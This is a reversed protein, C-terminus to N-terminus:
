YILLVLQSPSKRAQNFRRIKYFIIRVFPVFVMLFIIFDFWTFRYKSYVSYIPSLNVNIKLDRAANELLSFSDFKEIKGTQTDLLLYSTVPASPEISNESNDASLLIYSGEVQMQRVGFIADDQSFVAGPRRQTKPNYVTGYDLVDIMLIAYGNPLTTQWADGIGIDNGFVSVNVIAQIIFLFVLWAIFKFPFLAASFLIRRRNPQGKNTFFAAAALLIISSVSGLIIGVLAWIILVFLLGM